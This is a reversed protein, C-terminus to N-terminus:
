AVARNGEGIKNLAEIQAVDLDEIGQCMVQIYEESHLDFQNQLRISSVSIEMPLVADQGFTLAYLTTEIGVRKSTRYAWLTDGLKEHWREPSDRRDTVITEPVGYRHLIKTEIFKKMAVSTITKVASAEVWKTFYNIAVIIFTHGKSSALYIKGIFDMAWGRFIWPKVVPNLPVSPIHQLPGHRQCEECGKAYAKWDKELDPWFYGYRMLLWKMKTGAQHTGCTGEHVEAMVRMLEELSLCKLLLGYPTKRLLTKDWMVFKTAQQRIKKSTPYSPDKLHQTIPTRWDELKPEGMTIHRCQYDGNLQNIVLESDGFVEVETTGLEILIELGNILAKYEVMKNTTNSPIWLSAVELTGPINVLKEQPEQHEFLLRCNSAGKNSKSAYVSFQVRITSSDMEWNKWNANNIVIDDIYVEMSHGILDHFIANMARQYTAGANKLGFPMVVYEYVGVHGPCKFSTKHIDEKAMKIQNYGANGYMFSLVKHKAVTDISLDAMPMPYEDKPM